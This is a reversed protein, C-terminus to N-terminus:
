PERCPGRKGEQTPNVHAGCIRQDRLAAAIIDCQNARAAGFSGGSRYPSGIGDKAAEAIRAAEEWIDGKPMAATAARATDRWMHETIRVPGDELFTSAYDDADKRRGFRLAELSDTTWCVEYAAEGPRLTLWKPEDEHEILWGIEEDGITPQDPPIPASLAAREAAIQSRPYDLLAKAAYRSNDDWFPSANTIRLSADLTAEIRDLMDAAERLAGDTASPSRLAAIVEVLLDYPIHPAEGAALADSRAQDLRKILDTAPPTTLSQEFRSLAYAVAGLRPGNISETLGNADYWERVHEFFRTATDLDVKVEGHAPHSQDTM